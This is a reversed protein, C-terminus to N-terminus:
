YIMLFNYVKHLLETGTSPVWNGSSFKLAFQLNNYVRKSKARNCSSAATGRQWGFVDQGFAGGM